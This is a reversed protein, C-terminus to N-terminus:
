EIVRKQRICRFRNFKLALSESVSTKARMIHRNLTDYNEKRIDQNIAHLTTIHAGQLASKSRQQSIANQGQKEIENQQTKKYNLSM